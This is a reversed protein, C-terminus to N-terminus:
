DASCVTDEEEEEPQVLRLVIHVEADQHGAEDEWYNANFSELRYSNGEFYWLDHSYGAIAQPVRVRKKSPM